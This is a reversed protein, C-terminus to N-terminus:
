TGQGIVASRLEADEQMAALVAPHQAIRRLRERLKVFEAPDGATRQATVARSHQLARQAQEAISPELAPPAWDHEIAHFVVWQQRNQNGWDLRRCGLGAAAALRHITSHTYTVCEPYVWSEGQYDASGELYTAAFVGQPALVRRAEALCGALQSQSTHSFISQALLVDFSRGFRSLGFDADHRFVPRKLRILDAGVEKGIGADVLWANPELGCYHDPLLYPILLRAARLSGCGIELVRHFERLGLALTLFGFQWAAAFDYDGLAGVYARHLQDSDTPEHM